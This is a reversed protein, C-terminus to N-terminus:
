VDVDLDDFGNGGIMQAIGVAAATDPDVTPKKFVKRALVAFVVVWFVSIVGFVSEKPTGSTGTAYLFLSGVWVVVFVAVLLIRKLTLM